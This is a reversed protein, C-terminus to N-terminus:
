VAMTNCLGPNLITVVVSSKVEWPDGVSWVGPSCELFFHKQFDNWMMMSESFCWHGLQSARDQVSGQRACEHYREILRLVIWIQLLLRGPSGGSGRRIFTPSSRAYPPEREAKRVKFAHELDPADDFAQIFITGLRRDLDEVRQNFKSVYNEFEQLSM